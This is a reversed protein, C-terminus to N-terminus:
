RPINKNVYISDWEYLKKDQRISPIVDYLEFNNDRLFEDIDCYKPAGVYLDHNQMEVVVIATRKLTNKGGRLVELEFGQVDVKLISVDQDAPIERDLTSVAVSEAGIDKLNESFFQNSINREIDFFSSSTIRQSLHIPLEKEESGLAKNVAIIHKNGSVREKLLEFTSGIPEFAYATSDPFAEIFKQSIRGDAAGVDVISNCPDLRLYRLLDIAKDIHLYGNNLLSPYNESDKVLMGKFHYEFDDRHTKFHEASLNLAEAKAASSRNFLFRVIRGCTIRM